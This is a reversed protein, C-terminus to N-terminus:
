RMQSCLSAPFKNVQSVSHPCLSSYHPLLTPKGKKAAAIFLHLIMSLFRVRRGISLAVTLCYGSLASIIVCWDLSLSGSVLFYHFLLVTVSYGDVPYIDCHLRSHINTNGLPHDGITETVM